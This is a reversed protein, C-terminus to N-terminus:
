SHVKEPNTDYRIGFRGLGLEIFTGTAGSHWAYWPTISLGLMFTPRRSISIRKM